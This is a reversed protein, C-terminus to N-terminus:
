SQLGIIRPMRVCGGFGPIIGLKTEPLGIRTSPDDTAIRYDCAMIFECGGGACAGHIAAITPMPLDEIENFIEQGGQVARQFQEKATMKKIEDIDAGAIFIKPKNSKFIVAKYSSKKLEVIVERLRNMVPTNLKN